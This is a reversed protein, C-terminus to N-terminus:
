KKNQRKPNVPFWGKEVRKEQEFLEKISWMCSFSILGFIIRLYNWPVLLALVFFVLSTVLFCPWCKASFSFEARIVIPHFIGIILFSIAGILVGDINLEM